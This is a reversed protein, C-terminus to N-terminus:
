WCRWVRRWSRHGNRWTKVRVWGCEPQPTYYRPAYYSPQPFSFSYRDYPWGYYLYPGWGFGWHRAQASGTASLALGAALVIGAFIRTPRSM